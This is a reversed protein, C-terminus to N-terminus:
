QVLAKSPSLPADPATAFTRVAAAVHTALTRTAAPDTDAVEASVRLTGDPILYFSVSPPAAIATDMLPAGHDPVPVLPLPSDPAASYPQDVSVVVDVLDTMDLGLEACPQDLLSTLPAEAWRRSESLQHHVARVLARPTCAAGIEIALLTSNAFPGIMREVAAHSRNDLLTGVGVLQRSRDGAVAAAAASALAVFHTAGETMAWSRLDAVVDAPVEAICRVYRVAQPRLRGPEREAALNTVVQTWHVRSSALLADHEVRQWAAYDLYSPGELDHPTATGNVFAGYAASLDDLLVAQSLGDVCLHHMHLALVEGGPRRFLQARLMNGRELDFPILHARRLAKRVAMDDGPDSVVTLEVEPLTIPPMIVQEGDGRFGLRLASHRNLVWQLARRLADERVPVGTMLAAVVNNAPSPGLAFEIRLLEEQQMSVPGTTRGSAVLGALGAQNALCARVESVLDGFVPCTFVLGMPLQPGLEKRLRSMLRTALMSHGGTVFFDDEEAVDPVHLVAQWTRRVVDSVDNAASEPRDQDLHKGTM